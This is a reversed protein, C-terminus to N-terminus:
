EDPLASHAAHVRPPLGLRQAVHGLLDLLQEREEASLDACLDREHEIARTFARALTERGPETLFLARARRDTPNQRREVLGRQELVDVFAVMRSPPIQLREGITQQSQGEDAGIARLLAFERPELGAPALLERFRRAVAYGISSITFGVSRFPPMSEPTAGPNRLAAAQAEVWPTSPTM